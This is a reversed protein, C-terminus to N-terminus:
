AKLRQTEESYSRTVKSRSQESNVEEDATLVQCARVVFAPGICDMGYGM